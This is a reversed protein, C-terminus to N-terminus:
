LRALQLLTCEIEEDQQRLAKSTVHHYNSYNKRTRVARIAQLVTGPRAVVLGLDKAVIRADAPVGHQALYREKYNNLAEIASM